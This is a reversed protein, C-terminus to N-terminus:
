VLKDPELGYAFGGVETQYALLSRLVAERPGNEFLHHFLHRELLRGDQQFFTKARELIGTM